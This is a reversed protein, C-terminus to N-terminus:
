KSWNKTKLNKILSFHKENNTVLVLDNEIAIGAILLDSTGITTGKKRLAAYIDTSIVVSQETLHILNNNDVFIDFENIQTIANKFKLGGLIEFYTIISINIQEHNELYSQFNSVVKANGKFYFSLIDTDLLSEKM